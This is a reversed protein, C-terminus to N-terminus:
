IIVLNVVWSCLFNVGKRTGGPGGYFLHFFCSFPLPFSPFSLIFLFPPNFLCLVKHFYSLSLLNTCFIHPFIWLLTPCVFWFSVSLFCFLFLSLCFSVCYSVSISFFSIYLTIYDSPCLKQPITMKSLKLMTYQSTCLM